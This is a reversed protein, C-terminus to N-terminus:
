TNKEADILPPIQEKLLDLIVVLAEKGIHAAINGSLVGLLTCYFVVATEKEVGQKRLLSIIDKALNNARNIAALGQPTAESM